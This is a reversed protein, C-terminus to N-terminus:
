TIYIHAFHVTCVTGLNYEQSNDLVPIERSDCFLLMIYTYTSFSFITNEMIKFRVEGCYM